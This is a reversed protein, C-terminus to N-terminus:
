EDKRTSENEEMGGDEEWEAGKIWEQFIKQFGARDGEKTGAMRPHVFSEVCGGGFDVVWVDFNKDIVINGPHVDGWVIDILM